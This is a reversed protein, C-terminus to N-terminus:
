PFLKNLRTNFTVKLYVTTIFTAEEGGEGRGLYIANGIM